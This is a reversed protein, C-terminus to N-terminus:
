TAEHVGATAQRENLEVTLAAAQSRLQDITRNSTVLTGSLKRTRDSHRRPSLQAAELDFLQQRASRSVSASHEPYFLKGSRVAHWLALQSPSLLDSLEEASAMGCYLSAEILQGLRDESPTELDTSGFEALREILEALTEAPRSM